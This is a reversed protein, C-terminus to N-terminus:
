ERRIRFYLKEAMACTLDPNLFITGLPFVGRQRLQRLTGNVPIVVVAKGTVAAYKFRENDSTQAALFVIDVLDLYDQGVVKHGRQHLIESLGRLTQQRDDMVYTTLQLHFDHRIWDDIIKVTAPIFQPLPLDLILGIEDKLALIEDTHEVGAPRFVLFRRAFQSQFTLMDEVSTIDGVHVIGLDAQRKFALTPDQAPIIEHGAETLGRTLREDILKPLQGYLLAITAM